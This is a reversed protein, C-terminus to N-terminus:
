IARSKGNRFYSRNETVSVVGPARPEPTCMVERTASSMLSAASSSLSSGPRVVDLHFRVSPHNEVAKLYELTFERAEDEDTALVTLGTTYGQADAPWHEPTEGAEARAM